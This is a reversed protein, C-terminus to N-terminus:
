CLFISGLTSEIYATTASYGLFGAAFMVTLKIRESKGHKEKEKGLFLFGLIWVFSVSILMLIDHVINM